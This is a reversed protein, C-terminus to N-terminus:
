GATKDLVKWDIIFGKCVAHLIVVVVVVGVGIDEWLHLKTGIVNGFLWGIFIM